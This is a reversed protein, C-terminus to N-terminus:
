PHTQTVAALQNRNGSRRLSKRTSRLDKKWEKLTKSSAAAIHKKASSGSSFICSMLGDILINSVKTVRSSRYGPFIVQYWSFKSAMYAKLNTLLALLHHRGASELPLAPLDIECLANLRPLLLKFFAETLGHNRKKLRLAEQECALDALLSARLVGARREDNM